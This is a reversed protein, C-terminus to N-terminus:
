IVNAASLILLVLAAASGIAMGRLVGCAFDGWHFPTVSEAPITWDDGQGGMALPMQEPSKRATIM